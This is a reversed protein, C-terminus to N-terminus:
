KAYIDRCRDVFQQWGHKAFIEGKLIKAKKASDSSRNQWKALIRFLDKIDDYLFANEANLIEPIGCVRPSIIPMGSAGVELLINPLGDWFSTYLFAHYQNIDIDGFRDFAGWLRVNKLSALHEIDKESESIEGYIHFEIQPFFEAALQLTGIDKQFSLRSCWLVRFPFQDSPEIWQIFQDEVPYFIKCTNKIPVMRRLQDLFLQNDLFLSDIFPAASFLFTFAYSTAFGDRRYDVCYLNVWLKSHLSLQQGYTAFLNWGVASCMTHVIEPKVFDLVRFLLYPSESPDPSRELIKAYEIVQVSDPLQWELDPEVPLTIMLTVKNKPYLECYAKLHLIAEKEAGGRRLQHLLVVYQSGAMQQCLKVFIDQGFSLDEFEEFFKTEASLIRQWRPDSKAAIQVSDVLKPDSSIRRTFHRMKFLKTILLNSTEEFKLKFNKRRSYYAMNMSQGRLRRISSCWHHAYVSSREVFSLRFKHEMCFQFFSEPLDGFHINKYEQSTFFDSLFSVTIGLCFFHRSRWCDIPFKNQKFILYMSDNLVIAKKPLLVRSFKLLKLEKLFNQDPFLENELFLVHSFGQALERVLSFFYDMRLDVTAVIVKDDTPLYIQSDANPLIFLFQCDDFVELCLSQIINKQFFTKDFQHRADVVCLIRSSM